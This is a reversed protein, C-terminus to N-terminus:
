LQELTKRLTSIPFPIYTDTAAVAYGGSAYEKVSRHLMLGGPVRTVAYDKIYSISGIDDLIYDEFEDRM